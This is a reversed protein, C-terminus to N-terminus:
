KKWVGFAMMRCFEIPWRRCDAFLGRPKYRLGQSVCIAVGVAYSACLGVVYIIILSLLLFLGHNHLFEYM